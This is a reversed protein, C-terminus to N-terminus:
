LKKRMIWIVIGAIAILAPLVLVTILGIFQGQKQDIEFKGPENEKKRISILSEDELAWSVSNIFLDQNLNIRYFANSAFLSTGFVVIRTNQHANSGTLKGEVAVAFNLPGKKDKGETFQAQGKTLGSLDTEAWANDTSQVLWFFSLGDSGYSPIELSRTLPFLVGQKDEFDRVVAHAKNFSTAVPTSADAGYMKAFPDVVMSHPSTVKWPALIKLVDQAQETGRINPDISIVARGGNKLYDNILTKEKELFARNAGAIVLCSCETPVKGEQVLNVDKVEYTQEVLMQRIADFGDQERSTFSKEGHGTLACVIAPKEKLLKILANTIKEETVEDVKAEKGKYMLQLTGPKKIGAQKTRSLEKQINVFEYQFKPNLDKYNNMVPAFKERDSGEGYLTAQLPEQLGKVLKETQDSFSNLQQATFDKKFPNKNAMFNLVGVIAIVLLTTIMSQVGFAMNRKNMNKRALVFLLVLDIVFLGVLAYSLYPYEPLLTQAFAFGFAFIFLAIWLYLSKIKM